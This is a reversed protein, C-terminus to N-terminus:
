YLGFLRLIRQFLNLDEKVEAAPAEKEPLEIAKTHMVFQVSQINTNKPSTFSKLVGDGGTLPQLMEDIKDQLKTDMGTTNDRLDRTGNKLDRVGDKLEEVGAYLDNTGSSLSSAGSAAKSVNNTYDIVGTNLTETGGLLTLLTTKQPEPLNSIVAKYNDRTLPVGVSGYITANIFSIWGDFVQDAGGQLTPNKSAITHLGNSLSGAGIELEWVGDSLNKV